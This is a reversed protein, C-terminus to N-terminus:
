ILPKLFIECHGLLIMCEGVGRTLSKKIGLNEEGKGILQSMRNSFFM